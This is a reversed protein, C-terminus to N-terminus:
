GGGAPAKCWRGWEGRCGDTEWYGWLGLVWGGQGEKM